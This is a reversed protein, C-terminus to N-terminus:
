KMKKNSKSKKSKSQTNMSLRRNSTNVIINEFEETESYESIQDINSEIKAKPAKKETSRSLTANEKPKKSFNLTSFLDKFETDPGDSSSQNDEPIDLKKPKRTETPEDLNIVEINPQKPNFSFEADFKPDKVNKMSKM